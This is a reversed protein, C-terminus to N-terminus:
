AGSGFVHDRRGGHASVICATPSSPKGFDISVSMKGEDMTQQAITPPPGTQGMNSTPVSPSRLLPSVTSARFDQAHIPSPRVINPDLLPTYSNISGANLQPTPTPAPNPAWGPLPPQPAGHLSGVPHQNSAHPFGPPPHPGPQQTVPGNWANFAPQGLQAPQGPTENANRPEGCCCSMTTSSQQPSCAHPNPRTWFDALVKDSGPVM